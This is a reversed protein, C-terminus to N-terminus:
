ITKFDEEASLGEPSRAANMGAVARRFFHFLMAAACILTLSFSFYVGVNGLGFGKALLFLSGAGVIIYSVVAVAMLPRVRGTGRLASGYNVQLADFFQYLILPLVLPLGAAVVAEDQTFLGFLSRGSTLFVLSAVSALLLMIHTGARASRRIAGVDRVGTFNAVRVTVAVGVSIYIMFGFQGVINAIQYSALQPTGFWGCVVAGLAWLCCEVGNLIMIPYSTQWVTRLVGAGARRSAGLRLRAYRRRLGLGLLIAAAMLLRSSATAIGAGLLGMEPLGWRGFILLYNGLVNLANGGIMIWMPMATDTLGNSANQCCTFVANFVVSSLIVLYYPGILPLLEPPQGFFPLLFYVAGMVLTFAMAMAVNLLLGGRLSTGAEEELRKGFLAGVIPTMGNSFGILAVIPVLFLNNVFAAAGLENTGYAGVMMTDAFSVTIIGLQTILVPFGLKGLARYEEFPLARM